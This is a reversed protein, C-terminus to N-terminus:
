KKEDRIKMKRRKPKFKKESASTENLDGGEDAGTESAHFSEYPTLANTVTNMGTEGIALSTMSKSVDIPSVNDRTTQVKNNAVVFTTSNNDASSSGVSSSNALFDPLQSTNTHQMVANNDVRDFEDQIDKECSKLRFLEIGDISVKSHFYNTLPPQTKRPVIASLTTMPGAIIESGGKYAFPNYRFEFCYREVIEDYSDLFDLDTAIKLLYNVGRYLFPMPSLLKSRWHRVDEVVDVTQWRVAKVLEMVEAMCATADSNNEVLKHLDLLMNERVVVKQIIEIEMASNPNQQAKNNAKNTFNLNVTLPVDVFKSKLTSKIWDSATKGKEARVEAAQKQMVNFKKMQGRPCYKDNEASYTPIGGKPPPPIYWDAEHKVIKVSNSNDAIPTLLKKSSSTSSHLNNNSAAHHTANSKSSVANAPKKKLSAGANM